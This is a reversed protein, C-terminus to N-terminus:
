AGSSVPHQSLRWCASDASVRRLCLVNSGIRFCLTFKEWVGSGSSIGSYPGLNAFTSIEAFYAFDPGAAKNQIRSQILVRKRAYSRITGSFPRVLATLCDTRNEQSMFSRLGATYFLDRFNGAITSTIDQCLGARIQELVVGGGWSFFVSPRSRSGARSFRGTGDADSESESFKAVRQRRKVIRMTSCRRPRDRQQNVGAPGCDPCVSIRVPGLRFKPREFLREIAAPANWTPHPQYEVSPNARRFQFARLELHLCAGHWDARPRFPLYLSFM